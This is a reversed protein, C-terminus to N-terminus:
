HHFYMRCDLRKENCFKKIEEGVIDWYVNDSYIEKYEPVLDPHKEELFCKVSGWVIGTINLSEFMFYDAYDRIKQIIDEWVTLYPLIHSIFVHNKIGAEHVEIM